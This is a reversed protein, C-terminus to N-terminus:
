NSGRDSTLGKPFRHFRYHYNLFREVCNEADMCDIFELEVSMLLRNTIVMLYCPDKRNKASLDTMFDISLESHSREPITLSLLLGQWRARWM